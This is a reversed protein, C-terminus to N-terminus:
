FKIMAIVHTCTLLSGIFTYCNQLGHFESIEAQRTDSSSSRQVVSPSSATHDDILCGNMFTMM